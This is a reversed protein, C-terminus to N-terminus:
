AEVVALISVARVGRLSRPMARRLLVELREEVELAAREGVRLLRRERIRLLQREVGVADVVGQERPKAGV